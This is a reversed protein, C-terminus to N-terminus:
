ERESIYLTGDSTARIVALHRDKTNPGVAIDLYTGDPIFHDGTTATVTNNGLRIFCPVTAYISIVRTQANFPTSNRASTATVTLVFDGGDLYGLTPVPNGRQDLPMDAM